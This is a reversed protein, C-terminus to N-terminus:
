YHPIEINQRTLVTNMTDVILANLNPDLADSMPAIFARSDNDYYKGSADSFQRSLAAKVLINAGISPTNGTVGFGKTVMKTALFSGPNITFLTIKSLKTHNALYNSWHILALKSQSYLNFEDTCVSNGTLLEKDVSTQAASSVNIIRAGANMNPLLHLALLYPAFTNVAFRIDLGAHIENDQTTTVKFVGANNILIDIQPAAATIQKALFAINNIDSLDACVTHVPQKGLANLENAYQDLKSSNRGHIIVQHGLLVLNEATLRGIGDTAGTIVITKIM